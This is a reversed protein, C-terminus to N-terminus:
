SFSDVKKDLLNLIPLLTWRLDRSSELRKIYNMRVVDSVETSIKLRIASLFVAADIDRPGLRFCQMMLVKCLIKASNDNLTQLVALRRGLGPYFVDRNEQPIADIDVHDGQDTQSRAIQALAIANSLLPNTAADEILSRIQAVSKMAEAFRLSAFAWNHVIVSNPKTAEPISFLAFVLPQKKAEVWLAQVSDLVPRLKELFQESSLGIEAAIEQHRDALILLANYLYPLAISAQKRQASELIYTIGDLAAQVGENQAITPALLLADINTPTATSNATIKSRINRVAERASDRISVDRLLTPDFDHLYFLMLAQESEQELGFRLITTIIRQGIAVDGRSYLKVKESVLLNMAPRVVPWNGAAPDIQDLIGLTSVVVDRLQDNSLIDLYAQATEIAAARASWFENPQMQKIVASMVQLAVRARFEPRKNALHRLIEVSKGGLNDSEFISSSSELATTAIYRLMNSAVDEQEPPIREIWEHFLALIVMTREATVGTYSNARATAFEVCSNDVYETVLSETWRVKSVLKSMGSEILLRVAMQFANPQHDKGSTENLEDFISRSYWGKTSRSEASSGLAIQRRLIEWFKQHAERFRGELWHELASEISQTKLLLPPLLVSARTDRSSFATSKVSLQASMADHSANGLLVAHDILGANRLNSRFFDAAAENGRLARTAAARSQTILARLPSALTTWALNNEIEITRAAKGYLFSAAEWADMDVCLDGIHKIILISLPSGLGEFIHEVTSEFNGERSLNLCNRAAKYAELLSNISPQRAQELVNSIKELSTAPLSFDASGFSIAKELFAPAVIGSDAKVEPPLSVDSDSQWTFSRIRRQLYQALPSTADRPRIIWTELGDSGQSVTEEFLQSLEISGESVRDVVVLALERLLPAPLFHRLACWALWNDAFNQKRIDLLSQTM